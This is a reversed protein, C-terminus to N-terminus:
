KAIPSPSRPGETTRGFHQTGVIIGERAALKRIKSFAQESNQLKGVADSLYCAENYSWAIYCSRTECLMADEDINPNCGIQVFHELLIPSSTTM